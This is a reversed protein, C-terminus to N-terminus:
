VVAGNEHLDSVLIFSIPTKMSRSNSQFSNNIDATRGRGIQYKLPESAYVSDCIPLV